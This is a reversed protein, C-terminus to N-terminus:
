EQSGHALWMKHERSIANESNIVYSSLEEETTVQSSQEYIFILEQTALGYSQALEENRRMQTWAMFAAALTTFVGTLQIISERWLGLTFAFIIALFQSTVTLIFLRAASKRNTETKRSYWQKQDDIRESLYLRKREYASLTRAQRMKETIQQERNYQSGLRAAFTKRELLLSHLSSIFIEDAKSGLEISYPESGTMYRWTLTKVSEAIARGDYWVRELKTIRQIITICIGATLLVASVIALTTKISTDSLVFAGVIAAIIMLCLEISTLLVFQHQATLSAKDAARYLAPFDDYLIKNKTDMKIM